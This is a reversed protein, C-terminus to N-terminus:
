KRKKFNQAPNFMEQPKSMESRTYTNKDDGDEDDEEEDDL